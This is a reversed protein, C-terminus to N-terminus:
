KKFQVIVFGAIRAPQKSVYEMAAEGLRSVKDKKFRKHDTELELTTAIVLVDQANGDRTVMNRIQAQRALPHTFAM